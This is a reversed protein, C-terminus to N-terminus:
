KAENAPFLKTLQEALRLGAKGIQLRATRGCTPAYEAPAEPADDPLEGRQGKFDRVKLEGNLYGVRKAVELGERGWAEFSQNTSLDKAIEAEKSKLLEEIAHTESGISSPTTGTGILGDWFAHLKVPGSRIRVFALNGGQDGKPFQESYVASCHLPQHIDGVLHFFWTLYIAKEQDTGNHIKELCLPLQNVINEQQAPPEFDSAKLQSGPPVIPYNIYHWPGRHFQSNPRVWDSWSAARMFVWEDETYAEPRKASLFADYHPHKKLIAVIKAKQDHSLKHWALRAVVMHGKENWALAPAPLAILLVLTVLRKMTKM